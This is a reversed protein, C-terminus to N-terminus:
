FGVLVTVNQQTIRAIGQDIEINKLGQGTDIVLTGKILQTFLPTHGPLIAVNSKPAPIILSKAKGEYLVNDLNIVALDFETPFTTQGSSSKIEENEAM